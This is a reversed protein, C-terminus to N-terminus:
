MIRKFHRHLKLSLYWRSDPCYPYHLGSELYMWCKRNHAYLCEARRTCVYVCWAQPLIGRSNNRVDGKREICTQREVPVHTVRPFGPNRFLDSRFINSFFQVICRCHIQLHLSAYFKFFIFNWALLICIILMTTFFFISSM